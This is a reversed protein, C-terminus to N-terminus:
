SEPPRHISFECDGDGKLVRNRCRGFGWPESRDRGTGGVKASSPVLRRGARRSRCVPMRFQANLIGSDSLVSALRSGADADIRHLGSRRAVDAAEKLWKLAAERDDTRVADEGLVTLIRTERVKMDQRRAQELSGLLM